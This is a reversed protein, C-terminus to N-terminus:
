YWTTIICVCIYRTYIKFGGDSYVEYTYICKYQIFKMSHSRHFGLFLHFFVCPSFDIHKQLKCISVLKTAFVLFSGIVWLKSKGKATQCVRVFFVHKQSVNTKEVFLQGLICSMQTFRMGYRTEWCDAVDFVIRISLTMDTKFFGGLGQLLM